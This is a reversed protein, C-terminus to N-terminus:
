QNPHWVHMPGYSGSPSGMTTHDTFHGALLHPSPKQKPPLARLWSSYLFCFLLGPFPIACSIADTVQHPSPFAIAIFAMCLHSIHLHASRHIITNAFVFYNHFYHCSTTFVVKYWIRVSKTCPPTALVKWVRRRQLLIVPWFFYVKVTETNICKGGWFFLNKQSIGYKVSLTSQLQMYSERSADRADHVLAFAYACQTCKFTQCSWQLRPFHLRSDTSLAFVEAFVLIPPYAGRISAFFDRRKVVLWHVKFM